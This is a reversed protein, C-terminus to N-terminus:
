PVQVVSVPIEEPAHLVVFLGIPIWPELRLSVAAPAIDALTDAPIDRNDSLLNLKRFESRDRAM